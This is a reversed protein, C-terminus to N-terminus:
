YAMMVLQLPEQQEQFEDVMFWFRPSSLDALHYESKPLNLSIPKFVLFFIIIFSSFNLSCTMLFDFEFKQEKFYQDSFM